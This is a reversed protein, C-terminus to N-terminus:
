AAFIYVKGDIEFRTEMIRRWARKKHLEDKQSQQHEEHLKEYLEPM